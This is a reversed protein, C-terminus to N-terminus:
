LKIGRDLLEHKLDQLKNGSKAIKNRIEGAIKPHVNALIHNILGEIEVQQKAIPNESKQKTVNPADDEDDVLGRIVTYTEDRVNEWNKAASYLSQNKLKQAISKLIGPLEYEIDSFGINEGHKLFEKLELNNTIKQLYYLEPKLQKLYVDHKFRSTYGAKVLNFPKDIIGHNDFYKEAANRLQNHLLPTQTKLIDTITKISESPSIAERLIEYIKM